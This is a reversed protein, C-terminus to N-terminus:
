RSPEISLRGVLQNARGTLSARRSHSGLVVYLCFARGEFTFFVQAGAQGRLLRQLQNPHFLNPHLTPIEEVQAFLNSGIAEAGFEVLSLFVDNPGLREVAGAGYDAVSGDLPITSAHLVPFTRGGRETAASRRIRSEWGEPVTVTIGDKSMSRPPEHEFPGRDSSM